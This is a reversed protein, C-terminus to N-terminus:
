TASRFDGFVDVAEDLLSDIDSSVHFLASFVFVGLVSENKDFGSNVTEASVVPSGFSEGVLPSLLM